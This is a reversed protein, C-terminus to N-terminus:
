ELVQYPRNTLPHPHPHHIMIIVHKPLNNKNNYEQHDDDEQTDDNHHRRISISLPPTTPRPMIIYTYTHPVRYSNYGKGLLNEHLVVAKCSPIALYLIPNTQFLCALYFHCDFKQKQSEKYFNNTPLNSICIQLPLFLQVQCLIVPRGEGLM